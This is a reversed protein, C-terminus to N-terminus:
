LLSSIPTPQPHALSTAAREKSGFFRRWAMSLGTWVLTIGGLAALVAIGQGLFGAAEGTHIPRVWARLKQGMNQTEYPQWRVVDGTDRDLSLQAVTDPRGGNGRDILFNAPADSVPSFRLSISHWGAIQKEAQTWLPNIGALDLKVAPDDASRKSRADERRHEPIRNGTLRYLLDNAWNHSMIIGTLTVLLLLPACWIGIVNHWNWDRSKGHLKLDLFISQRFRSRSWQRPLWLILGSLLLAFYAMSVTGTIAEGVPRATGELALWRHWSTMFRFFGRVIKQGEGQV